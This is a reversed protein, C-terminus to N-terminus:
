SEEPPEPLSMWHTVVYDDDLIWNPNDDVVNIEYWCEPIWYCDKEEDYETDVESDKWDDDETTCEHYGIHAACTTRKYKSYSKSQIRILVTEGTEPLKDKVSIWNSM